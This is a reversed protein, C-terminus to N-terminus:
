TGETDTADHQLVTEGPLATISSEATPLTSSILSTTAVEKNEDQEGEEEEEVVVLRPTEEQPTFKSEEVGESISVGRSLRMSRVGSGSAGLVRTANSSSDFDSSVRRMNTPISLSARRAPAMEPSVYKANETPEFLTSNEVDRSPLHATQQSSPGNGSNDFITTGFISRRKVPKAAPEVDGEASDHPLTSEDACAPAPVVDTLQSASPPAAVVSTGCGM